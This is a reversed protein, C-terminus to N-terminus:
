IHSFIKNYIKILLYIYLLDSIICIVCIDRVVSMFFYSMESNIKELGHSLSKHDM